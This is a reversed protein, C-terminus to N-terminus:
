ENEKEISYSVKVNVLEFELFNQMGYNLTNNFFSSKLFFILKDKNYSITCNPFEVLKMTITSLEIEENEFLCWTKTPKHKVAYQIECCSNM